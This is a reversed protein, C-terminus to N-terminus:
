QTRALITVNGDGTIAPADVRIGAVADVTLIRIEGSTNSATDLIAWDIGNLTGSLTVSLASVTGNPITQWALRAGMADQPLRFTKPAVTNNTLASGLTAPVGRSILDVTDLFGM